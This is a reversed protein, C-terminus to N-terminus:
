FKRPSDRSVFRASRFDKRRGTETGVVLSGPHYLDSSRGERMAIVQYLSRIRTPGVEVRENIHDHEKNIRSKWTAVFRNYLICLSQYRNFNKQISGRLPSNM